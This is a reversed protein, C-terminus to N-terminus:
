DYISIYDSVVIKPCEWLTNDEDRVYKIWANVTFTFTHRYKKGKDEESEIDSNDVHNVDLLHFRGMEGDPNIPVFLVPNRITLKTLMNQASRLADTAKTAWIDAQYTLTVPISHVYRSICGRERTSSTVRVRDGGIAQSSYRNHDIPMSPDRYVSIFPYPINDKYKPARKVLTMEAKDTPAYVVIPLVEKMYDVVAIDYLEFDSVNVSESM